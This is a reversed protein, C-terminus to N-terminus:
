EGIPTTACNVAAATIRAETLRTIGRTVGANRAACAAPDATAADTVVATAARVDVATAPFDAVIAGATRQVRAGAQVAVAAAVGVAAAAGELATVALRHAFIAIGEFADRLAGVAERAM